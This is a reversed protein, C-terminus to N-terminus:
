RAHHRHQLLHQRLLRLPLQHQLLLQHLLLHQHRLLLLRLRLQLQQHQLNRLWDMAISTTSCTKELLADALGLAKCRMLTSATIM